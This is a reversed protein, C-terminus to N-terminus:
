TGKNYKRYANYGSPTIALAGNEGTILEMFQDLTPMQINNSKATKATNEIHVSGKNKKKNSLNSMEISKLLNLIYFYL